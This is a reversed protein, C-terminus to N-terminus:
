ALKKQIPGNVEEMPTKKFHKISQDFPIPKKSSAVKLKLMGSNEDVDNFEDDSDQM